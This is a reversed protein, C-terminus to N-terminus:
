MWDDIPLTLGEVVAPGKLASVTAHGARLLATDSNEPMQDTTPALEFSIGNDDRDTVLTQISGKPALTALRVGQIEGVPLNPVNVNLSIIGSQDALWRVMPLAIETASSWLQTTGDDRGDLQSLALGSLGRQRGTLVAGITASYLTSSGTNPGQNVGALVLDVADGFVGLAALSVIFAPPASVAHASVGALDPLSVARLDARGPTELPGLAASGGSWDRTPGAVVPTWGQELVAVALAHLGPSDIGDDNTVLIRM